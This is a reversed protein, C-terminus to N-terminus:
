VVVTRYPTLTVSGVLGAEGAPPPGGFRSASVGASVLDNFITRLYNWLTTPVTVRITNEGRRLYPGIDAVSNTLDLPPIQQDNVYVTVTDIVRSFSLYAGFDVQNSPCRRTAPANHERKPPWTFATNYYGVGSTNTLAPIKTWSTPTTLQHTTNYKVTHQSDYLDEPAEWHEATLTWASLQLPEPVCSTDLSVKQGTSLVAHSTSGSRSVHLAIRRDDTVKNGLVHPPAAQVHYRPVPHDRALKDSFAFFLTQNGALNIPITTTSHSQTYVLVPSIDGTWPNLIFPTETSEVTISGTSPVLDSYVVAYSYNEVEGWTTYCTGNTKVEVRPRLGLERLKRAVSGAAVTHVNRLRLLRALDRDYKPKQSDRGTPYYGPTGGSFIVPLGNRAYRDLAQIADLTLNQTAEVIFAKWAPGDPALVGNRVKAEKLALNDASLYNWSWGEKLLDEGQYINDITTASEKHYLVVDAKPVSNQLISQGRAIYDMTKRLGHDWAPLRPSFLDSFMYNFPTHGPWTTNPYTGSYAQGHLVMQNVGGIFARNVSFLLSPLHYNYASGRVAGMENSVIRKGSLRAPGSFARYMDINDFFSLSECEPVDLSPIASLMDMVSGYVPQASFKVGLDHAWDALATLYEKYGAVLTARFDNVFSLGEDETDLVCEFAGPQDKQMVVTNQRFTLVPLYPRISYGHLRKFREPLSRSWTVNFHMELSDEWAYNGARSLLAAVEDTLIHDQWFEKVVAAGRADFHDVTYSGDDFIDDHQDSRFALNRAGALREYFAFLRYHTRSRARPLRLSVNGHRDVCRTQETLTKHNLVFRDYTVPVPLGALGITEFTITENSEVLATVLAVLNGSGWGPIKKDYRGSEPIAATHPTMDWQLGEKDPEAPVGQGQNPGLAFDMVLEHEAHAELATRFLDVFPATGFNYVSWDVPPNPSFTGGYEFFPVLEVGGAGIDATHKIDRAVVDGDVSADPLWYRFRPRVDAPPDAFTHLSSSLQALSLPLSGLCLPAILLNRM